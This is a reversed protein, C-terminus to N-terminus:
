VEEDSDLDVIEGRAILREMAAGIESLGRVPDTFRLLPSRLRLHEEDLPEIFGLSSLRRIAEAVRKRIIEHVIRKDDFRRTRPVAARALDRESVIGSLRTNLQELTAVSGSQLTAPDLNQLALTQGVLM